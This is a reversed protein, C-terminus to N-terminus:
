IHVVVSLIECCGPEMLGKREWVRFKLIMSAILSCLDVSKNNFSRQMVKNVQMDMAM